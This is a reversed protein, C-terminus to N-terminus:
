YIQRGGPLSAAVAKYVNGQVTEALDAVGLVGQTALQALGQLDSVHLYTPLRALLSQSDFSPTASSDPQPM